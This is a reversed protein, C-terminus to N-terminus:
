LVNYADSDATMAKEIRALAARASWREDTKKGRGGGGCFDRADLRESFRGVNGGVIYGIAAPGTEHM